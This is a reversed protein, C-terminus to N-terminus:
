RVLFRGPMMTIMSSDRARNWADLWEGTRKALDRENPGTWNSCCEITLRAIDAKSWVAPLRRLRRAIFDVYPRRWLAILAATGQAGKGAPKPASLHELMRTEDAVKQKDIFRGRAARLEFLEGRCLEESSRLREWLARLRTEEGLVRGNWNGKVFDDLKLADNCREALARIWARVRERQMVGSEWTTANFRRSEWPEDVRQEEKSRPGLMQDIAREILAASPIAAPASDPEHTPDLSADTVRHM